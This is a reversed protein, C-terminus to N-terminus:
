AKVLRRMGGFLKGSKENEKPKGGPHSVEAALERIAACFPNGPDSQIIPDGLNISDVLKAGGYPLGMMTLNLSTEAHKRSLGLRPFLENFVLVVRDEPISLAQFIDLA